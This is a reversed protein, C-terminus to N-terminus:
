QMQQLVTEYSAASQVLAGFTELSVTGIYGASLMVPRQARAIIMIVLFKCRPAMKYWGSDYAANYVELSHTTLDSGLWYTLGMMFFMSMFHLVHKAFKASTVPVSMLMFGLMCIVLAGTVFEWFVIPSLLSNFWDSSRLMAQHARVCDKLYEYMEADFEFQSYQFLQYENRTEFKSTNIDECDEIQSTNKGLANPHERRINERSDSMNLNTHFHKNQFFASGKAFNDSGTVRLSTRMDDNHTDFYLDRKVYTLASIVERNTPVGTKFMDDHVNSLPFHEATGQRCHYKITGSEENNRNRFTTPTKIAFIKAELRLRVQEQAERLSESILEFQATMHIIVVYYFASPMAVVSIGEVATSISQHILAAIYNEQITLDFPYWTLWTLMRPKVPAEDSTNSPSLLQSSTVNVMFPTVVMIASAIYILSCFMVTCWRARAM